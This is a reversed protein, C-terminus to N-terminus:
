TKRKVKLRFNQLKKNFKQYDESGSDTLKVASAEIKSALEPQGNANLCEALTDLYNPDTYNVLKNSAYSWGLSEKCKNKDTRYHTVLFWAFENLYGAYEELSRATSDRTIGKRFWKEAEDLENLDAYNKAMNIEPWGDVRGLNLSQQYHSISGRLDGQASLINGYDNELGASPGAKTLGAQVYNLALQYKNFKLMLDAWFGYQVDLKTKIVFMALTTASLSGGPSVGNNQKLFYKLSFSVSDPIFSAIQGDHGTAAPYSFFDTLNLQDPHITDLATISVTRGNRSLFAAAREALARNGASQTGSAIKNLVSLYQQDGSLALISIADGLEAPNSSQLDRQAKYCQLGSLLLWDAQVASRYQKIVISDSLEPRELMKIAKLLDVNDLFTEIWLDPSPIYRVKDPIRQTRAAELVTSFRPLCLDWLVFVNRVMAEGIAAYQLQVKSYIQKKLERALISYARQYRLWAPPHSSENIEAYHSDSMTAQKGSAIARVYAEEEPSHGPPAANHVLVYKAQDIVESCQFYFLVGYLSSLYRMAVAKKTLPDKEDAIDNKLVQILLRIGIEDAELEQQWSRTGVISTSQDGAELNLHLAQRGQFTHGKILHGYEHAVAFLEMTMTFAMLDPDYKQDLPQTDPSTVGLFEMLAMSFNIKIDSNSKAAEIAAQQSYDVAVKHNCSNTVSITPLTIKSMQYAFMFLKTNFGIISKRPELVDKGTDPPYTYANIEPTPLSGYRPLIKLPLNLQKRAREVKAVYTSILYYVGPDEYCTPMKRSTAQDIIFKVTKDTTNRMVGISNPRKNVASDVSKYVKIRYDKDFLISLQRQGDPTACYAKLQEKEFFRYTPDTACTTDLSCWDRTTEPPKVKQGFSNNTALLLGIALLTNLLHKIVMKKM